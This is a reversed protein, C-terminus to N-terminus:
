DWGSHVSTYMILCIIIPLDEERGAIPSLAKKGRKKEKEKNRKKKKMKM